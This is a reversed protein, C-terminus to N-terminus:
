GEIQFLNREVRHEADRFGSRQSAHARDMGQRLIKRLSEPLLAGPRLKATGSSEEATIHM